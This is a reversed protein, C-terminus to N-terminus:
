QAAENLKIATSRWAEIEATTVVIEAVIAKYKAEGAETIDNAVAAQQNLLDSLRLEAETRPRPEAGNVAAPVQVTRPVNNKGPVRIEKKLTEVAFESALKIREAFPTVKEPTLQWELKPCKSGPLSPPAREGPRGGRFPVCSVRFQENALMQTIAIASMAAGDPSDAAAQASASHVAFGARARESLETLERMNKVLERM